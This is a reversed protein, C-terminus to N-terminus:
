RLDIRRSSSKVRVPVASVSDVVATPKQDDHGNLFEAFERGYFCAAAVFAVSLVTLLDLISGFGIWRTLLLLGVISGVVVFDLMIAALGGLSMAINRNM